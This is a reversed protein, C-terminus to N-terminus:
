KQEGSKTSSEDEFVLNAAEDFQDKRRSSYAWSFIGLFTFMVVLTIIGQIIGYDM